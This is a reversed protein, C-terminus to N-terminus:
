WRVEGCGGSSSTAQEDSVARGHGMPMRQLAGGSAAGCGNGKINSSRSWWPWRGM